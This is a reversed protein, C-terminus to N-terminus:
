RPPKAMPVLRFKLPADVSAGTWRLRFEVGIPIPSEGTIQVTATLDRAAAAPADILTDAIAADANLARRRTQVQIAAATHITLEYHGPALPIVARATWVDRTDATRDSLVAPAEIAALNPHEVAPAADLDAAAPADTIAHRVEWVANLLTRTESWALGPASVHLTFPHLGPANARVTLRVGDEARESVPSAEGVVSDAADIAVESDSPLDKLLYHVQFADDASLAVVPWRDSLAQRLAAAITFTLGDCAPTRPAMVLVAAIVAVRQLVFNFM